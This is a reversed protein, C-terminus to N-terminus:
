LSLKFEVRRNKLRNQDTTNPVIPKTLGYYEIFIRSVPVGNQVLFAKVSEARRKSLDLNFSAAGMNDTHGSLTLKWNKNSNMLEAAGKLLSIFEGQIETSNYAFQVNEIKSNKLLENAQTILDEENVSSNANTKQEIQQTILAKTGEFEKNAAVLQELKLNDISEPFGQEYANIARNVLALVDKSVGAKLAADRLALLELFEAKLEEKNAQAEAVVEPVM